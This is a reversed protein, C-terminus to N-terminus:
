KTALFSYLRGPARYSRIRHWALQNMGPVFRLLNGVRNFRERLSREAFRDLEANSRVSPFANILSDWPGFSKQLTLGAARISETYADLSYAHEGGALQHVPHESLFRRLQDDNDVVHERCALFLGGPKLVRAAQLMVKPLDKVHHLVQRGYVIDISEDPLPISEGVGELPNIPAEHMLLRIAKRGLESDDPELAHVMKAGASAFAYSAIGTGAGLDLIAAGAVRGNLLSCVEAFEASQTFRDAAAFVDEDFYSDRIFDSYKSDLRLLAVAERTTMKTEITM